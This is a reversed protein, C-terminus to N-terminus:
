SGKPGSVPGLKAKPITCYFESGGLKSRRIGVQGGHSQVISKVIALGLGTGGAERARGFDVRYFREFLRDHHEEPIGPGNDSVELLSGNEDESWKVEIRSGEPIYSIANSVLNRLVQEFKSRDVWVPGSNSTVTIVQKRNQAMPSLEVMVAESIEMPDTWEHKLEGKAELASIQLLDTVLETLRVVNRDLIQAFKLAQETQGAKLDM